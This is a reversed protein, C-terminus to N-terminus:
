SMYLRSYLQEHQMSRIDFGPCCRGIMERDPNLSANVLKEISPHISFLIEQGDQQGLPILKVCNTVMGAAANYYFGFLMDRKPIQLVSAYLGFVLSYNGGGRTEACRKFEDALQNRCVPQFIKMLRSGMKQSAERMERPLKVASCEEDLLLLVDLNKEEAADFALAVFAADTFHLNQELQGKIFGFATERNKVIGNQVYTELGASHAFGGIPLAPDSLQLLYLLHDNKM